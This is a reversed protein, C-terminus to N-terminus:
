SSTHSSCLNVFFTLFCDVSSSFVLFPSSWVEFLTLDTGGTINWV